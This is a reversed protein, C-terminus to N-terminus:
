PQTNGASCARTGAQLIRTLIDHPVERDEYIRTARMGYIAEFVDM